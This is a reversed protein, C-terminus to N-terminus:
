LGPWFRFESKDDIRRKTGFLTSVGKFLAEFLCARDKTGDELIKTQPLMVNYLLDYCGLFWWMEDHSECASGSIGSDRDNTKVDLRRKTGTHVDKFRPNRRRDAM